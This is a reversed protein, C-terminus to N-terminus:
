RQGEGRFGNGVVIIQCVGRVFIQFGTTALLLFSGGIRLGGDDIAVAAIEFVM